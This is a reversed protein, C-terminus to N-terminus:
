IGHLFGGDVRLTTGNIFSASDRILFKVAEAVDHATGLRKSVISSRIEKEAYQLTEKLTGAEIPGPAVTNVRIGKSGYEAALSRSFSEVFGKTGAYVTQGRNGRLAAVSSINIINGKRKRLMSPITARCTKIFAFINVRIMEEINADSLSPLNETITVAAANVLIDTEKLLGCFSDIEEHLTFNAQVVCCKEGLESKLQECALLRSSGHLIVEDDRTCIAKAIATGIESSAGTIVIKRM